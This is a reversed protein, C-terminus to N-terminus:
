KSTLSKRYEEWYALRENTSLRKAEHEKIKAIYHEMPIKVTADPVYTM